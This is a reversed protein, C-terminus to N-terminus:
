NVDSPLKCGPFTAAFGYWRMLLQRPFIFPSLTGDARYLNSGRIYAGGNLRLTEGEWRASKIWDEIYAAVPSVAEPAHYVLVRRGDFDVIKANDNAYLWELPFFMSTSGDWVGLGLEFRPRRTDDEKITAFIGNEFKEPKNRMKESFTSYQQQEPTLSHMLFLPQAHALAESARMQRTMAIADLRKGVSSGHLCEGTIHQWYSDTEEDWILLLGDYSGRRNFHLLRGDMCASFVMGTNCANCFTMVWPKDFQGQVVNYALVVSMPFTYLVGDHQFTLLPTDPTVIGASVSDRLPELRSVDLRAPIPKGALYDELVARGVDFTKLEDM